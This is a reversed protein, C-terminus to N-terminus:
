IQLESLQNQISLVVIEQIMSALWEEVFYHFEPGLSDWWSKQDIFVDLHPDLFQLVVLVGDVFLIQHLLEGIEFMQILTAKTFLAHWLQVLYEVLCEEKNEWVVFAVAV